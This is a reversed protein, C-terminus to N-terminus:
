KVGYYLEVIRKFVPAAVESGEGANEFVVAIAIEPTEATTGDAKQYPAAPAFGAFWANPLAQATQATGTKGAVPVSFGDFVFTATGSSSNTVDRLSQNITDIMEQDIPLSDATRPPLLEEPAGGGAGIKSILTPHWLQGNHALAAVIRAMQLPTVLVYGQGIAMNVADGTVWGGEATNALKWDPDPINGAAEAVGLADTRSGLGFQRAITPLHYPDVGDMNYGADYFCSNCSVVLATRLSVFGHGGARWDYKIAQPGLRDWSGTSNYGSGPNYLGSTVAAAFTVIKFTSGPPYEAQAARNFLPRSPDNLLASITDPANPRSLDFASPDYSPYSAMALIEGMNVDLVVAAGPRGYRAGAEALAQEVALQFDIDFTTYISRAQRPETEAITTIYQGTSDLVDLIGGRTGSLYTEGWAELGSLGVLADEQYGQAAYDAAQDAPIRGLYGVLHPAVPAYIRTLRSDVTLGQGLFPEVAAYNEEMVQVPVQGIPVYWNPDANAYLAQIDAATKGLLPELTALLGAEDEIQGPVVGFLVANGQYALARGNRDYINARSPTRYALTLQNGGALEPLILGENWVLGWRGSSYILDATHNRIIEGVIATQWTVQVTFTARDGEQAAALPQSHVTQVTATRLATEYRQTFANADVLAQSQPSLLSYMGLYNGAEWAKYFTQGVEAAGGPVPTATASVATNLPTLTVYDYSDQLTPLAQCGALWVWGLSATLLFLFRRMSHKTMQSYTVPKAVM